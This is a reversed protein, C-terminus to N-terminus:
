VLVNEEDVVDYSGDEKKVYVASQYKEVVCLPRKIDTLWARSRESREVNTVLKNFGLCV